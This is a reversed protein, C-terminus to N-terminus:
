LESLNGAFKTHQNNVTRVCTHGSVKRLSFDIMRIQNITKSCCWFIILCFHLMNYGFRKMTTYSFPYSFGIKKSFYRNKMMRACLLILLWRIYFGHSGHIRRFVSGEPFFNIEMCIRTRKELGINRIISHLESIDM